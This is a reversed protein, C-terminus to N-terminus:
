DESYACYTNAQARVWIQSDNNCVRRDDHGSGYSKGVLVSGTYSLLGTKSSDSESKIRIDSAYILPSILDNDAIIHAGVIRAGGILGGKVNPNTDAM